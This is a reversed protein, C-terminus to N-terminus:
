DGYLIQELYERQKELLLFLLSEDEEEIEKSCEERYVEYIINQIKQFIRFDKYMNGTPVPFHELLEHTLANDVHNRLMNERKM